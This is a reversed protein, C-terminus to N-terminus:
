REGHLKLLERLCEAEHEYLQRQHFINSLEMLVFKQLEYYEEEVFKHYMKELFDVCDAKEILLVVYEILDLAAEDKVTEKGRHIWEWAKEEDELKYFSFALYAFLFPWHYDMDIAKYCYKICEKYDHMKFCNFAINDYTTCMVYRNKYQIALRITEEFQKKAMEFESMRSYCIGISGHTYLLRNTNWAKEFMTYAKRFYFLATLQENMRYHMIGMHYYLMDKNEMTALHEATEYLTKAKEYQRVKQYCFGSYDYYLCQEPLTYADKFCELTKIMDLPPKDENMTDYIFRLLAFKPFLISKRIHQENVNEFLRKQEDIDDYLLAHLGADYLEEYVDENKFLSIFEIGIVDCIKKWTNLFVEKKGTEIELYQPKQIGTQICITGIDIGQKERYYRIIPGTFEVFKM